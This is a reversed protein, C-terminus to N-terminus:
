ADFLALCMLPPGVLHAPLRFSVSLTRLAPTGRLSLSVAWCSICAPTKASELRLLPM